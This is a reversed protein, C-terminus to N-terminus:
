WRRRSGPRRAPRRRGRGRVLFTRATLLRVWRAVRRAFGRAFGGCVDRGGGGLPGGGGGLRRGRRCRGFRAVGRLRREREGDVDTAGTELGRDEVGGSGHHGIADRHRGGVRAPRRLQDVIEDLQHRRQGRGIAHRRPERAHDADPDHQRRRVEDGLVARARGDVRAEHLLPGAEVQGRRQARTQALRGPHGVVGVDLPHRHDLAPAELEDDREPGAHPRCEEVVSPEQGM